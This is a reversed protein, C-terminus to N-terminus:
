PPPTITRNTRWEFIKSRSGGRKQWLITLKNGSKFKTQIYNLVKSGELKDTAPNTRVYFDKDDVFVPTESTQCTIRLIKKSSVRSIKYDIYTYNQAGIREIIM